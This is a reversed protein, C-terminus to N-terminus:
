KNDKYQGVHRVCTVEVMSLRVVAPRSRVLSGILLSMSYITEAFNQTFVSKNVIINYCIICKSVYCQAFTMDVKCFLKKLFLVKFKEEYKSANM